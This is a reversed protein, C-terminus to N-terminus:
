IKNQSEWIQVKKTLNEKKRLLGELSTHDFAPPLTCPGSEAPAKVMSEVMFEKALGKASCGMSELCFEVAKEPKTPKYTLLKSYENLLHFMYDYVYEMKLEEQMFSSAANGIVQAQQMHNNGWDVAFKISRCKNDDRIPWYHQLPMLGRTFFDYFRTKVFLTLSNCALIYKESVSWGRGEIYIKYRHTCQSALNSHKFGEKSEKVWNQSYLRANWDHTKSVNCKRLEQRTDAVWFNGKWYAYPERDVWKIRENSRKLDKLLTEWPKVNVEPWGWFTWDPFVIDLMEDDTCYAFLPPPARADKAEYDRSVPGDGCDFMLELDPVRGPYRRLLQMIGWLTFVDRTQFVKSLTEVYLRGDLIALHFNATPRLREVMEKSIGTVNWPRLDEHIWRFYEPCSPSKVNDYITAMSTLNHASCTATQNEFPCLFPNMQKNGSIINHLIANGDILRVSFFAGIFLLIVFLLTTKAPAKDLTRNMAVKVLEYAYLFRLMVGQNRKCHHKDAKLANGHFSLSRAFFHGKETEAVKRGRRPFKQLM